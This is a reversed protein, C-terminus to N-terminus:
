RSRRAAGLPPRGSATSCFLGTRRGARGSAPDRIRRKRHEFVKGYREEEHQRLVVDSKPTTSAMTHSKAGPCHCL